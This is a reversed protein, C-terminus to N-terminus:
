GTSDAPGRFGLHLHDQHVIDTFSGALPLQWPSGLETVGAGSVAELLSVVAAPADRLAVIPVGDLSWIDVARGRTHNSTRDTGFVEVPHGGVLTAVAIRHRASIMTLLELVRDDIRGAQIDWRATDPLEIRADALVAAAASTTPAGTPPLANDGMSGIGSVAWGQATLSLRVDITRTLRRSGSDGILHQEAVVMVSAADGALGGLQPYVIRTRSAEAPSLLAVAADAITPDAGFQAMVSRAREVTGQGRDYTALAQVLNAARQKAAPAPEDPLLQYPPFSPPASPASSSTASKPPTAATSPPPAASSAPPTAPAAAPERLAPAAAQLSSCATLAVLLPAACWRTSWRRRLRRIAAFELIPLNDHQWQPWPAAGRPFGTSAVSPGTGSGPSGQGGPHPSAPPRPGRPSAFPAPSVM